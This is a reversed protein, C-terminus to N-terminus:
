WKCGRTLASRLCKLVRCQIFVSQGTPTKGFGFGKDVFWKDVIVKVVNSQTTLAKELTAECEAESEQVREQEMRDIEATTEAFRERRVLVGVMERVQLLENQVSRMELMMDDLKMGIEEECEGKSRKSVDLEAAEGASKAEQDSSDDYLFYHM